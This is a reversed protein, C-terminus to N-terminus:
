AIKEVVFIKFRTQGFDFAIGLVRARMEFQSDFVVPPTSVRFGDLAKM